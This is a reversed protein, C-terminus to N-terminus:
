YNWKQGHNQTHNIKPNRQSTKKFFYSAFIGRDRTFFSFYTCYASGSGAATHQSKGSRLISPVRTAFKAACTALQPLPWISNSFFGWLAAWKKLFPRFGAVFYNRFPWFFGVTWGSKKIKLALRRSVGKRRPARPYFFSTMKVFTTM